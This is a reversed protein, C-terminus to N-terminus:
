FGSLKGKSFSYRLLQTEINLLSDSEDGCRWSAKPMVVTV